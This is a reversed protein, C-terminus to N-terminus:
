LANHLLEWAIGKWLLIAYAGKWKFRWWHVHFDNSEILSSLTWSRTWVKQMTLLKNLLDEVDASTLLLCWRIMSLGSGLRCQLLVWKTWVCNEFNAGASCCQHTVCESFLGSSLSVNAHLHKESTMEEKRRVVAESGLWNKEQVFYLLRGCTEKWVSHVCTLHRVAASTLHM